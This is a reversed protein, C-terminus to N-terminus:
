DTKLFTLVHVHRAMISSNEKEQLGKSGALNSDIGQYFLIKKALKGGGATLGVEQRDRIRDFQVNKM